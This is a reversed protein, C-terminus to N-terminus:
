REGDSWNLDIGMVQSVTNDRRDQMDRLASDDYNTAEATEEIPPASVTTGSREYATTPIPDQWIDNLNKAVKPAAPDFNGFQAGNAGPRTRYHRRADKLEREAAVQLIKEYNGPRQMLKVTVPLCEIVLFLLFLLFRAGGLTLNSSTLNSLAQLRILLGNTHENTVDFSQRLSDLRAQAVTLQQKAQPLQSQAQKVRLRDASASKATIAKERAQIRRGFAAVQAKANDYANESAQALVGNGKAPCDPGGYLQCQWQKYYKQEQKQEAQQQATLSKVIPDKAPNPPIAGGSDIVKQLSAVKNQAATVQKGVSSHSLATLYAAARQEKIVSIQANIESQFIRLVLPTSIVTGLLVALVIRPLALGFRRRNGTAPISTVLWRDIGMIILGWALAAPLSLIANYGLASTLAFWMSITAMTSTILIAWGLSQFKIRETPCQDLIERRAGSLTILFGQM